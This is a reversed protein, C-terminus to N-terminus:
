KEACQRCIFAARPGDKAPIPTDYDEKVKRRQGCFDCKGHRNYESILALKITMTEKERRPEAFEEVFRRVTGDTESELARAIIEDLAPDDPSGGDELTHWAARRVMVDSDELMRYLADWVEEIRRRVHCPCLNQAAIKRQEADESKSMEVFQLIEERRVRREGPKFALRQFKNHCRKKRTM